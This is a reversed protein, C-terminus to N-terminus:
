IVIPAFEYTMAKKGRIIEKALPIDMVASEGLVKGDTDAVVAKVEGVWEDIDSSQIFFEFLISDPIDRERLYGMAEGNLHQIQVALQEDEFMDIETLFVRFDTRQHLLRVPVNIKLNM